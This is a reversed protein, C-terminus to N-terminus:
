ESARTTWKSGGNEESLGGSFTRGKIRGLRSTPLLFSAARPSGSGQLAPSSQCDGWLCQPELGSSRSGGSAPHNPALLSPSQLRMQNFVESAFHHCSIAPVYSTILLYSAREKRNRPLVCCVCFTKRHMYYLYYCVPKLGRQQTTKLLDSFKESGGDRCRCVPLFLQTAPIIPM